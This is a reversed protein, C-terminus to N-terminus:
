IMNYDKLKCYILDLFDNFADITDENEVERFINWYKDTSAIDLIVKKLSKIDENEMNIKIFLLIEGESFGLERYANEHERFIEDAITSKIYDLAFDIISLEKIIDKMTNIVILRYM